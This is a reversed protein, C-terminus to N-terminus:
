ARDGRISAGLAQAADILQDMILEAAEVDDPREGALDQTEDPDAALDFLMREGRASYRAFAVDDDGVLVHQVQMGTLLPGREVSGGHLLPSVDRGTWQESRELGLLALLTPAVDLHHVLDTVRQAQVDPGVVIWPVRINEQYVHNHLYNDHEGFAEGHDSLVVVYTDPGLGSSEVAALVRTLESDWYAVEEDYLGVLRDVDADSPADSGANFASLVEDTGEITSGEVQSWTGVWPVPAEYITHPDMFHLYLFLPPADDGRAEFVSIAKDALEEASTLHNPETVDLIQFEDFGQELNGGRDTIASGKLYGLTQYGEASLREALTEHEVHLETQLGDETSFACCRHAEAPVGTFVTAVSPVTWSAASHVREFVAGSAALGDLGPSTGRAYGYTGLHDARLTDVMVLVLNPAGAAPEASDDTALVSDAPGSEDPATEGQGKDNCGVLAVSM